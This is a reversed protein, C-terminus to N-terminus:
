VKVKMKLLVEAITLYVRDVPLVLCLKGLIELGKASLLEKNMCLKDLINSIIIEINDEKFKAIECLLDM